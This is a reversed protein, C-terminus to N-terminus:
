KLVRHLTIILFIQDLNCISPHNSLLLVTSNSALGHWLTMVSASTKLMEIGHSGVHYKLSLIYYHYNCNIDVAIANANTKTKFLTIHLVLPHMTFKKILLIHSNYHLFIAKFLVKFSHNLILVHCTHKVFLNFLNIPHICIFMKWKEWHSSPCHKHWSIM